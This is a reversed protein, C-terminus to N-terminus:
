LRPQPQWGLYFNIAGRIEELWDRVLGEDFVNEDWSITINLQQQSTAAGLYLEAPRCRIM